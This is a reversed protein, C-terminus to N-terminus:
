SYTRQIHASSGNPASQCTSWVLLNVNQTTNNEPCNKNADTWLAPIDVHFFDRIERAHYQKSPIGFVSVRTKQLLIELCCFPVCGVAITQILLTIFWSKPRLFHQQHSQFYLNNPLRAPSVVATFFLTQNSGACRRQWPKGTLSTIFVVVFSGAFSGHPVSIASFKGSHNFSLAVDSDRSVMGPLLYSWINDTFIIWIDTKM